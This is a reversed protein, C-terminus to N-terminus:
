LQTGKPWPLQWCMAKTDFTFGHTAVRLCFVRGLQAALPWWSIRSAVLQRSLNSDPERIFALSFAWLLICLPFFRQHPGPFAPSHSM